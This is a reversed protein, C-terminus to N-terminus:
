IKVYKLMIMTSFRLQLSLCLKDLNLARIPTNITGLKKKRRKALIQLGYSLSTRMTNPTLYFLASVHKRYLSTLHQCQYCTQSACYIFSSQNPENAQHIMKASLWKEPHDGELYAILMLQSRLQFNIFYERSMELGTSKIRAPNM